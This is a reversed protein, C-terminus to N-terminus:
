LLWATKTHLSGGESWLHDLVAGPETGCGSRRLRVLTRRSTRTTQAAMHQAVSAACEYRSFPPPPKFVRTKVSTNTASKCDGACAPRNSKRKLPLCSLAVVWDPRPVGFYPPVMIVPESRIRSSRPMLAPMAAGSGMCDSAWNNIGGVSCSSAAALAAWSAFSALSFSALSFAAFPLPLGLFVLPLSLFVSGSGGGGAGGAGAVSVAGAWFAAAGPWVSFPLGPLSNWCNTLLRDPSDEMAPPDLPEARLDLRPEAEERPETMVSVMRSLSMAQKEKRAMSMMNECSMSWGPTSEATLTSTGAVSAMCGSSRLRTSYREAKRTAM